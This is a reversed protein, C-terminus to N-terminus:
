EDKDVKKDPPNEKSGSTEGSTEGEGEGEEGEAKQLKRPWDKKASKLSKAKPWRPM